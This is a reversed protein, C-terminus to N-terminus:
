VNFIKLSANVMYRHKTLMEWWVGVNSFQVCYTMWPRIERRKGEHRASVIKCIKNGIGKREREVFSILRYGLSELHFISKKPHNVEHTIQRRLVHWIMGWYYLGSHPITQQTNFSQLYKKANLNYKEEREVYYLNVLAELNIETDRSNWYNKSKLYFFFNILFLMNKFSAGSPDVQRNVKFM